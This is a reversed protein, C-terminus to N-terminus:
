CTCRRKKHHHIQMHKTTQNVAAVALWTFQDPHKATGDKQAQHGLGEHTIQQRPALHAVPACLHDHIQKCGNWKNARIQCQQNTTVIDDTVGRQVAKKSEVHNRYRQHQQTKNGRVDNCQVFDAGVVRVTNFDFGRVRGLVSIAM